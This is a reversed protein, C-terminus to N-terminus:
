IPSDYIGSPLTTYVQPIVFADYIVFLFFYASGQATNKNANKIKLTWTVNEAKIKIRKKNKLIKSNKYCVNM